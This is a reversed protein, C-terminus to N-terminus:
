LAGCGWLHFRNRDLYEKYHYMKFVTLRNSGFLENLLNWSSICSWCAEVISSTNMETKRRGRFHLGWWLFSIDFDMGYYRLLDFWSISKWCSLCLTNKYNKRGHFKYTKKWIVPLTIRPKIFHQHKQWTIFLGFIIHIIVCYLRRHNFLTKWIVPSTIDELLPSSVVLM